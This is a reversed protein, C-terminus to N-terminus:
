RVHLVEASSKMDYDGQFRVDSDVTFVCADRLIHMTSYNNSGLVKSVGGGLLYQGAALNCIWDFKAEVTSDEKVPIRLKQLYTSTGYLIAGGAKQIRFGLSIDDHAVKSRCRVRIFYKEENKLHYVKNGDNDFISIDELYTQLNDHLDTTTGVSTVCGLASKNALAREEGLLQEYRYGVTRPDGRMVLEGRNLLMASDCLDYVSQLSHTVFFVTTGRGVIERIRNTCKEVFLADGAALAEDVIFIDPDPSVATSFTLRAQMGSSYTKFPQDIVERLESFDIIYEIKDDIEQRSMGLCMGGMYINERGTHEPHFGTGLELIASIKGNVEVNGSTRDLTGALIKLLTSKGAGNRGIIGVVEGKDVDFSIDKLAWFESHRPRGLIEWLLDSPKGYLKFMKSLKEVKIATNNGPDNM